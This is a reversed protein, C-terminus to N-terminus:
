CVSMNAYLWWVRAAKGSVTMSQFTCLQTTQMAIALMCHVHVDSHV